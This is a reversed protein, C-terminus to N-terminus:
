GPFDVIRGMCDCNNDGELWALCQFLMQCRDIDEKVDQFTGPDNLNAILLFCDSFIHQDFARDTDRVPPDILACCDEPHQNDFYWLWGLLCFQELLVSYKKKSRAVFHFVHM